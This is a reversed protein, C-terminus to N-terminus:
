KVNATILLIASDEDQTKGRKALVGSRTIGKTAGARYELEFPLLFVQREPVKLVELWGDTPQFTAAWPVVMESAVTPNLPTVTIREEAPSLTLQKLDPVATPPKQWIVLRLLGRTRHAGNAAVDFRMATPSFELQRPTVNTAFLKLSTVEAVPDNTHVFVFSQRRVPLVSMDAEISSEEGPALTTKKATTITCGCSSAVKTIELPENGENRFFFSHSLHGKVASASYEKERFVIRPGRAAPKACGVATVALVGVLFGCSGWRMLNGRV